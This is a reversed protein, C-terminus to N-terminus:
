RCRSALLVDDIEVIAGAVEGGGAVEAGARIAGLAHRHAVHIAVAVEVDDGAVIALLVHDIEVIAGAVEGGGAVEASARIGGGLTATPSM